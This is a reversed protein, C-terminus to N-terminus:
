SVLNACTARYPENPVLEEWEEVTFNRIVSACARARLNEGGSQWIRATGDDSGSIVMQGDLTFGVALVDLEHAMRLAEEGSAVVWLRGTGDNSATALFRGDPSFRVVLVERDHRM